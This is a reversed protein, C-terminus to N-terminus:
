FALGSHLNSNPPIPHRWLEAPWVVLRLAKHKHSKVLLSSRQGVSSQELRSHSPKRRICLSDATRTSTTPVSVAITALGIHSRALRALRACVKKAPFRWSVRDFKRDRHFPAELLKSCSRSSVLRRSYRQWLVHTASSLLFIRTSCLASLGDTISIM